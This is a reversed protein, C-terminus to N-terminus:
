ALTLFIANEGMYKLTLKINKRFEDLIDASKTSGDGRYYLTFIIRKSIVLITNVYKIINKNAKCLVPNDTFNLLKLKPDLKIKM